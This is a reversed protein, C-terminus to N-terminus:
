RNMVWCVLSVSDFSSNAKGTSYMNLSTGLLVSSPESSGIPTVRRSISRHPISREIIPTTSRVPMPGSARSRWGSRNMGDDWASGLSPMAPMRRRTRSYSVKPTRATLTNGAPVKGWTGM